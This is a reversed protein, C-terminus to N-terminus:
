NQNQATPQEPNNSKCGAFAFMLAVAAAMTVVVHIKHLKRM